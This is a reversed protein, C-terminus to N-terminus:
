DEWFARGAEERVKVAMAADKKAQNKRKREKERVAREYARAKESKEPAKM